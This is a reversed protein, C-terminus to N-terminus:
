QDCSSLLAMEPNAPALHAAGHRGAADSNPLTKSKPPNTSVNFGHFYSDYITHPKIGFPTNAERTAVAAYMGTGDFCSECRWIEQCASLYRSAYSM